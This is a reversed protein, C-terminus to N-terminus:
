AGMIGATSMGLLDHFEHNAWNIFLQDRAELSSLLQTREANLAGLMASEWISLISGIPARFPWFTRSTSRQDRLM